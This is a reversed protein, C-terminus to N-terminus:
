QGNCILFLYFCMYCPDTGMFYLCDFDLKTTISLNSQLNNQEVYYKNM